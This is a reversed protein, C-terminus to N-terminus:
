LLQNNGSVPSSIERSYNELARGAIDENKSSSSYTGSPSASDQLGFLPGEEHKSSYQHRYEHTDSTGSVRGEFFPSELM